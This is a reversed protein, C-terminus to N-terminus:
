SERWRLLTAKWPSPRTPGALGTDSRQITWLLDLSLVPFIWCKRFPVDLDCVSNDCPRRNPDKSYWGPSGVHPRFRHSSPGSGMARRYNWKNPQGLPVYSEEVYVPTSQGVLRPERPICRINWVQSNFWASYIRLRNLIRPPEQGSRSFLLHM